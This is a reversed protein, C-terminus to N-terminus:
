RTTETRNTPFDGKHEIEMQVKPRENKDQVNWKPQLEWILEREVTRLREKDVKALLIRGGSSDLAADIANHTGGRYRNQFGKSAKGVYLARRESNIIAYVFSKEGGFGERIAERM